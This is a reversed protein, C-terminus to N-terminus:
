ADAAGTQAAAVNARIEVARTPSSEGVRGAAAELKEWAGLQLLRNENLRSEDEDGRVLVELMSDYDGKDAAARHFKLARDPAERELYRAVDWLEYASGLEILRDDRLTDGRRALLALTDVDGADAAAELLRESLAADAIGEAARRVAESDGTVLLREAWM